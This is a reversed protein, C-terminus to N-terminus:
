QEALWASYTQVGRPGPGSPLLGGKAMAAGGAAPLRLSLVPRRAGGARLLQRIMGALTEEQPGALEPLLGAPKQTVASVLADAVEWAAIPQVKMSPVVAIPTGPLQALLQGAFEHFQTARLVSAPVSGALVLEEQRLKGAYYGMKVRDIGVISLALHHRVGVQEGAALLQRTATEFFAVSESARRTNVNSVDIVAEVGAMAAALGKGSILDVAASRALVVPEHGAARLAAVVQMGVM